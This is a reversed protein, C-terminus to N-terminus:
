HESLPDSRWTFRLGTSFDPSAESLGGSASLSVRLDDTLRYSVYGGLESPDTGGSFSSDRWFYFGGVRTKDGARLWGGITAQWGDQRDSGARDGLFRRGLAVYGGGPRGSTGLEANLRYDTTGVGLGKNDDGTPLRVRGSLDLYAHSGGLNSFSRTLTLSTDGLGTETGMRTVTGGSGSGGGADGGDTTDVVDAPGTISVYALSARLSWKRNSIRASFPVSVVETDTTQGYDGSSYDMGSSFSVRTEASATEALAICPAVALAALFLTRM